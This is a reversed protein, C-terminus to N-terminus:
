KARQHCLTARHRSNGFKHFLCKPLEGLTRPKNFSGILLLKGKQQCIEDGFAGTARKFGGGSEAFRKGCENGGDRITKFFLVTM